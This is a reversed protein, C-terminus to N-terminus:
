SIAGFDLRLTGALRLLKPEVAKATSVAERLNDGAFAAQAKSWLAMADALGARAAALDIGAPPRKSSKGGLQDIRNQVAAFEVPLTASLRSWEGDLAKMFTLKAASAAGALAQADNLVAPSASMVAAYDKADYSAQLGSLRDQVDKLRDPIFKAADGGAASLTAEIEGIRVQAPEQDSGCAGLVMGLVIMSVFQRARTRTPM